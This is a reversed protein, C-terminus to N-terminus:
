RRVLRYTQMWQGPLVDSLTSNFIRVPSINTEIHTTRQASAMHGLHFTLDLSHAADDVNWVRVIIGESIGEEAPKLAWIITRPDAISVLSYSSSPYGGGSGATLYATVFPNQHELAMRMADAQDYEAHSRLAYRNKFYSDGNQDPTGLNADIRGGVLAKVEPTTVDLSSVSSNGLQFFLSDWNSLTVGHAADSLDVFHNMTLYDYRGLNDSYSGGQAKLKATAIAGVEEHRATHGSLNFNYDYTIITDGFNSTLENDIDIRDVTKYVTIRARHYPVGGANVLLTASVPGINEPVPTGSGSGIDNLSHGAQVLQRNGDLKDIMSSIAGHGDVTVRYRENEFITNGGSFTAANDTFKSPVSQIEYVRYGVSPVDEALIRVFSQSNKVILQSRVEEGTTVDVVRFPPTVSSPIDAIDTRSWGLPNFVYYRNGGPNQIHGALASAADSKLSSVYNVIQSATRRQFDVRQWSFPTIGDPWAHEYYLGMNMFAEEASESRTSMFTPDVFSVLTALAEASRLDEVARKVNATVEAMTASYLDWQNGFGGSFSPVSDAPASAKFDRFFDVENSVIVRQAASSKAQATTVLDTTLTQLDDGGKGFMGVVKTFPYRSLFTADSAAFDVAASPDRAEAYGGSAYDDTWSHWKMLVSRGDPGVAYYIERGRSEMGNGIQTAHNCVGKWSYKAGSGAWLSPLGYPLTQNEMACSLEFPVGFAREIRGPYYMSRIVAEAPMAGYCLVLPQLPITIHGDLIRGILRQFEQTSKNKQYTWLWFSGDASFRSQFDSPNAATADAQDLYYDFMRLFADRHSDEDALWIYDTHDDNAIYIRRRQDSPENSGGISCSAALFLLM